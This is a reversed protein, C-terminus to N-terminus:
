ERNWIYKPDTVGWGANCGTTAFGRYAVDETKMWKVHGDTFLVNEGDFHRGDLPSRQSLTGTASCGMGTGASYPYFSNAIFAPGTDAGANAFTSDVLLLTQAPAELQSELAGIGDARTPTSNICTSGAVRAIGGGLFVYNYGYEVQSAGAYVGSAVAISTNIVPDSAEWGNEKKMQTTAAQCANGYGYNYSPCHFLQRSKLYPDLKAPWIIPDNAPSTVLSAAASSTGAASLPDIDWAHPYRSDYDNTYQAFGLGLQKLNSQCSSRRANERARAFVPFLIAALIAIIAIVVLLEILTFATRRNQFHSQTKM